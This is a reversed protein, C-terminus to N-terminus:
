GASRGADLSEPTMCTASHMVSIEACGVSTRVSSCEFPWDSVPYVTMMGIRIDPLTFAEVLFRFGESDYTQWHGGSRSRPRRLPAPAGVIRSYSLREAHHVDFDVLLVARFAHLPRCHATDFM